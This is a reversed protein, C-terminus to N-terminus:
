YYGCYEWYCPFGIMTMSALSTNNDVSTVLYSVVLRSLSPHYLRLNPACACVTKYCTYHFKKDCVYGPSGPALKVVAKYADNQQRYFGTHISSGAPRRRGPPVPVSIHM